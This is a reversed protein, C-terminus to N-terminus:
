EMKMPVDVNRGLDLIVPERVTTAFGDLVSTLKYPGPALDLFRYRGDGETVFTQTLDTGRLTVTVGPLPLGTADIVHGTITGAPAQASGTTALAFAFLLVFWFKKFSMLTDKM